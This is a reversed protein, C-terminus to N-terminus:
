ESEALKVFEDKIRRGTLERAAVYREFARHTVPRYSWLFRAANKIATLTRKAM